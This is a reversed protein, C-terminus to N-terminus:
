PLWGFFFYNKRKKKFIAKVGGRGVVNKSKMSSSQFYKIKGVLTTLLPNQDKEVNTRPFYGLWLLFFNRMMKAILYVGEGEQFIDLLL